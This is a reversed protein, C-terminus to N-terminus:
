ADVGEESEILLRAALEADDTVFWVQDGALRIMGSGADATTM